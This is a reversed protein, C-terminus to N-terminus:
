QPARPSPPSGSGGSGSPQSASGVYEATYTDFQQAPKTRDGASASSNASASPARRKRSTRGSSSVEYGQARAKAVTLEEDWQRYLVEYEKEYREDSMQGAAYRREIQAERKEYRENIAAKAKMYTPLWSCGSLLIASAFVGAVITFGRFRM